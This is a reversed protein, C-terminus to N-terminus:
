NKPFKPCTEILKMFSWAQLLEIEKGCDFTAKLPSQM